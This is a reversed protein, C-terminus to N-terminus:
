NMGETSFWDEAYSKKKCASCQWLVDTGVYKAKRGAQETEMLFQADCIPCTLLSM